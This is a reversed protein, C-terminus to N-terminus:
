NSKKNQPVLVEGFSSGEVQYGPLGCPASLMTVVNMGGTHTIVM